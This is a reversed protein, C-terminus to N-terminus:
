EIRPKGEEKNQETTTICRESSNPQNVENRTIRDFIKKQYEENKM